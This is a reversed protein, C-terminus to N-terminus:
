LRAYVTISLIATRLAGKQAETVKDKSWLAFSQITVSMGTSEALRALQRNRGFEPDFTGLM